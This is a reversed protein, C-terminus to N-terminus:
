RWAKNIRANVSQIPGREIRGLRYKVEGSAGRAGFWWYAGAAGAALVVVVVIIRPLGFRVDGIAGSRSTLTPMIDPSARAAPATPIAGRRM